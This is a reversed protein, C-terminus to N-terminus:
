RLRVLGRRVATIAFAVLLLGMFAAIIELPHLPLTVNLHALAAWGAIFLFSLFFGSAATDVNIQRYLEDGFHHSLIAFVVGVLVLGGVLPLAISGALPGAPAALALVILAAGNAAMFMGACAIAIIQERAGVEDAGYNFFKAILSPMMCVLLCGVATNVYIAGLMGTLFERPELGSRLLFTFISGIITLCILAAVLGAGLPILLARKRSVKCSAESDNTMESSTM